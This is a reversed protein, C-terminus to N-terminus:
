AARGEATPAARRAAEKEERSSFLMLLPCAVYITSYTGAICGVIMAFSFGELVNQKGVNLVFIVVLTIIV